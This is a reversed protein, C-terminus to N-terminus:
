KRARVNVQLALFAARGGEAGGPGEGLGVPSVGVSVLGGIGFKRYDDNVMNEVAQMIAKAKSNAAPQETDGDNIEIGVRINYEEERKNSSPGGYTVFRDDSWVIEGVWLLRRPRQIGSYASDWIYGDEGLLTYIGPILKMQAILADKMDFATTGM